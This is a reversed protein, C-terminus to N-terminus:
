NTAYLNPYYCLPKTLIIITEVEKMLPIDTGYAIAARRMIAHTMALHRADEQAAYTPM